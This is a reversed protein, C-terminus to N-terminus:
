PCTTVVANAVTGLPDADEFATLTVQTGSVCPVSHRSVFRGDGGATEPFQVQHFQADTIRVVVLGSPTFGTGTVVFVTSSGAGEKSVGISRAPTTARVENSRQSEGAANFAAVSITYEHSSRLGTLSASVENPGVSQSGTHDSEGARKGLFQISFGDENDSQDIWSVSVKRDAVDTVRLGSPAKPRCRTRRIFTLENRLSRPPPLSRLPLIDKRASVAGMINLCELAITRMSLAM